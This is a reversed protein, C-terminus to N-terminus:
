ARRVAARVGFLGARIRRLLVDPQVTVATALSPDLTRGDISLTYDNFVRRGAINFGRFYAHEPHDNRHTQTYYFASRKNSFVVARNAARPVPLAMQEPAIVRTAHASSAALLPTAAPLALACAALAVIAIRRLRPRHTM